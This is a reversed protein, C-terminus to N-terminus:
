NGEATKPANAPAWQGRRMRTVTRREFLGAKHFPENDAFRDAAARRPVNIILM